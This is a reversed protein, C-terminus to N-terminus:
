KSPMAATACIEVILKRMNYGNEAFTKRLEDPKTLGYARVPQKVFHHFAQQAFAYQTEESNALFKALEKAGSFKEVKGSRTEYSGTADVPKDRETERWRGVADFNELSFGLPNMITHCGACAAPKTQLSVRERTTLNPHLDPAIPTFAEQPPRIGIGLLGRGIFVGRHIPSTEGIYALSAAVYPHTLVGGRRDPEFKVKKFALDAPLDIGHFKLILRRAADAPSEVGYFSALRGNFYTEEALFLQRFDSNESWMVDDLLLELSTRLDSAVEADFGPFRKADKSLDKPQDLKLWTILFERVKAKARPDLMMREAQKAVEARTGLKGAAAADFLEKDPPADWLAFALRTATAHQEPSGGADPYLFRPSKLVLLVVRKVALEPDAAADFQRDIFLAKESDTLPRRFARDALTACFAKLKAVRDGAGPQAGSLEPLRALIYAATEFAAETTAADWEKSVTSGREWGLSRDDPPFPTEIVAVEPLKQPTLHRAPIVELARNPRKWNLSVFAPKTPPIVGKKSDDVGQKAKSFELKIPYARGALLFVNARFETGDGSKVWADILAKRPDNVWLRLAHDTKVVFEYVGTDPAWVSGEWRISFTHPDFKEKPEPDATPPQKGFDFSVEPDTRDIQRKGNQFNRANFYEGRLGQKEEIKPSNRFSGVLDAVSNRYQKVTLRSLEVRPPNIRAQADPSYFRDYMFQAVRKAGEADLADPDGEPMTRDIVGALQAVSRDGTLPLEYKKTGEGKAGHCRSCMQKYIQEGTRTEEARALPAVAALAVLAFGFKPLTFTM